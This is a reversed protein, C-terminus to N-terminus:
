LASLFTASISKPAPRISCGSPASESERTEYIKLKSAAFAGLRLAHLHPALRFEGVVLLALRDLAAVAVAFSQARYPAAVIDAGRRNRPQGSSLSPSRFM